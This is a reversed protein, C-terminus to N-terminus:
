SKSNALEHNRDLIDAIEKFTKGSDNLDTVLDNSVGAHRLAFLATFLKRSEFHERKWGVRLIVHHCQLTLSLLLFHIQM